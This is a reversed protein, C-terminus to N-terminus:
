SICFKLNIFNFSPRSSFLIVLYKEVNGNLLELMRLFHLDHDFIGVMNLVSLKFYNTYLHSKELLRFLISEGAFPSLIVHTCIEKDILCEIM